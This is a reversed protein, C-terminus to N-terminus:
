ARVHSRNATSAQALDLLERLAVSFMTFNVESANKLETIFYEWRSVLFKHNKLWLHILAEKDRRVGEGTHLVGITLNRQQRDLDDRFAARALAEWHNTISQSKILERFWGLQLRNGISYYVAAVQELPFQHMTAAEVIDLASFMASMGGMQVALPGPVNAEIFSKALTDMSSGSGELLAPLARSIKAVNECFHEISESINLGSRRNRLFWRTGRRMLRNVEHLMRLQVNSGVRSTLAAIATQLKTVEFVARSVTYARIIDPPQAGTEDQLRYIFSIGMDNIVTNSIRTAIIERKLRHRDFYASFRKQIPKPFALALEKAIFPDEPLTSDLLAKKLITKSYAMLVAIEPRTLGRHEIKRFVIEDKDPLFELARNLNGAREMEQIVRHHMELNDAAQSVAVSIAETQRRNNYLVLEVVEDQMEVLLENRQKETLDGREVVDNLLIKINVENDSCNVGGSNDIADTNLRGGQEAYEIRGLQTLGLNGGEGVVKCRLETGNIRLADNTRDGVAHHTEKQSKVYTGIGGNWLLDVPAKLIARILENPIWKDQNVGLAVQAEPSLTISKATRLYIGGGKSLLTPNYDAWSSRPLQFLRKREEFSHLANPNPDLFIHQHNFAALLKLHKSLLVGNGFVDGSMDGIGVGTFDTTQINIGSEQFHRKVSEWAGRATIAMKKHDYGTSGGSAFADGLWFGYEKSIANAIDSFAATGKDAAVVLYPDDEDYRRLHQPPIVENGRLNDTVDLLGRIFIQYCAIVEELTDRGGLDLLRKVVFVGKAGMPVIVANKVQQAKMLGLGETRYDDRRDSWRLGGRAVRAGRLHIAEVRPSYVFIEYLPIPLPLEPVQPSHIKFSIYSKAHGTATKQYYNTRVTAAIIHLYRRLIRDENLNSVKELGMEIKQKQAAMEAETAVREPNFRLKFLQILEFAMDANDSLTEEISNQSFSFGIQWMYKAYARLVAIESASLQAALVLRNFGDNEASGCWVENFAEQFLDRVAELNLSGKPYVMRYDNIWITNGLSPTIEYPRESIIRLGMKELVPVVDSLPITAGIRFLKFRITDNSDELLRYLSVSLPKENSLSEFYELDIVAMRANFTEQYGAPFADRYRKLLANGREEGCHEELANRIEDKWTRGVEVLKKEIKKINYERKSGPHIRLVFHIRALTSESFRTSFMIETGDLEELLIGQMKERLQSTYAERPVFVLCSFFSGFTDKRIFLRIKQREHLHLVNQSLVLLEEVSAQFLDDRPLTELINLLARGDHSRQIYGASSFVSAVKRRLYPIHLPSSNYAVSTYLGVFRDQAILNGKEDWKKITIFDAYAPRHVTSRFDTKGVLLPERSLLLELVAPLFSSFSTQEPLDQFVRMLGLSQAPLRQLARNEGSGIVKYAEYGLFTFHDHAVWQLFALTEELVAPDVLSRQTRLEEEIKLARARMGPWDAVTNQVDYLVRRVNLAIMELVASDSQRDIELYIAAEANSDGTSARPDLVEIVRGQNDRRLKIDGKHIILHINLELRNLEMSVSDVLFPMDDFAIEIITHMSQWGQSELEPNYARVKAEGLRRQVFYHWHSIVAGYLDVRDKSNLDEPAVSLYYQRIFNQILASEHPPLKEVAEAILSEIVAQHIDENRLPDLNSQIV